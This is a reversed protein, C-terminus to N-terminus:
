KKKPKKAAAAEAADTCEKLQAQVGAMEARVTEVEIKASDAAAKATALDNQAAALSVQAAKAEGEKATVAASLEQVKKNLAAKGAECSNLASKKDAVEKKLDDIECGTCIFCFGLAVALGLFKKM